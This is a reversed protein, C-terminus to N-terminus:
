FDLMKSAIQGNVTCIAHKTGVFKAFEKKFIQVSFKEANKRIKVANFKDVNKEFYNIVNILSEVTQENFFIGTENPVVTELAGGKNYAIVPTGCAQIEVPVIGFDEEAAFVFAKAKQM